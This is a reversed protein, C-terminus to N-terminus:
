IDGNSLQPIGGLISFQASAGGCLLNISSTATNQIRTPIVVDDETPGQGVQFSEGLGWSWAKGESDVAINHHSGCIIARINPLGFLKTPIPLFRPKQSADFVTGPPFQGDPFGLQHADMRGWILLEGSHLLAASHHEGGTISVIDYGNLSEVRTANPVVAGDEGSSSEVGCQGFQNLGWASVKGDVHVAFSHYSGAGILKVNKLGFEQPILGNLRTREVVRRGLQHQQGNGWSFVRGTVTLALVHDTGAVVQCVGHLQPVLVPESAISVNKSFGLLGDSSRFTGWAYVQGDETLACTVSDGCAVQVIMAPLGEVPGPTSEMPNLGEDDESDSDDMDKFPAECDTNRGLAGQDNVGWTLIRGRFDLAACHMGGVSFDVIGVTERDLHINKRPRKVIKCNAEPGLGLECMSGTGFAFVDLKLSKLSAPENVIRASDRRRKVQLKTNTSPRRSDNDDDNKRKRYTRLPAM